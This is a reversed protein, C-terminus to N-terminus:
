GKFGGKHHRWSLRVDVKILSEECLKLMALAVKFIVTAGEHFLKDWVRVTLKIHLVSTFLTLFWHLTILSIEINHLSLVKDLAPLHRAIQRPFFYLFM